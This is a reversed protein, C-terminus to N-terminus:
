SIDTRANMQARIDTSRSIQDLLEVETIGTIDIFWSLDIDSVDVILEAKTYHLLTECGGFIINVAILPYTELESNSM